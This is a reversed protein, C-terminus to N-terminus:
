NWVPKGCAAPKKWTYPDSTVSWDGQHGDIDVGAVRCEVAVATPIALNFTSTTPNPTATTWGAAGVIRWQLIYSVAESYVPTVAPATWTVTKTVATQATVTIPLLIAVAVAAM